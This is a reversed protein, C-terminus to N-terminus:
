HALISSDEVPQLPPLTKAVLGELEEDYQWPNPLVIGTQAWGPEDVICGLGVWLDSQMQYKKMRCYAALRMQLDSARQSPAFMYTIGFSPKSFPISFDHIQHDSLTRERQQLAYQAFSDRTDGDMDLLVCAAQLYGATHRAELEDLIERMIEPMPQVPRPAPTERQGTVYMYYDDFDTTYSDLSILDPADEEEFVDDLFLGKKLYFGFWDLEEYATVRRLENIRQRRTLYHVLQSPFEVLETIVRLDTLSVAWPLGGEEFLGLDQLEYLTTVFADLPELTVTVLFIRNFRGSPIEITTADDLYFTPSDTEQIYRKARLAQLYPQEVLEKIDGVMRKPAGRRAPRSLSGAKAEVLFLASDLMILGDLEVQKPTGDELIHYVLNSYVKAHALAEELCEIAQNEVYKARAQNYREWLVRDSSLADPDDPNWYMEIAPRLSWLLSTLIPCLFHQGRRILPRKMLPHTPAPMRYRPEVSGFELSLKELFADIRARDISTEAALDQSTFSLTTGIAFFTWANVSNRIAQASESPRTSALRELLDVAFEDSARGKQRYRKVAKRLRGEFQEAEHRREILRRSKLSGIADVSALADEITFGLTQLLEDRLPALIGVLAEELHHHYAMYRVMFSRSLVQFRLKTLADPPDPRNPDIDRIAHYFITDHFLRKIRDQIDELVVAPIPGLNGRSYADYPKTMYLLAAYEAYQDGGEHKYEKYAEPDLIANALAINEIIDFPEFPSIIEELEQVSQEISEWLGDRCSALGQLIAWHEEETRTTDIHIVRGKRAMVFGPGYFVDDFEDSAGAATPSSAENSTDQDELQDQM